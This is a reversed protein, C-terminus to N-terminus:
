QIVLFKDVGTLEFYARLDENSNILTVSGGHIVVRDYLSRLLGLAASDVLGVWLLDFVFDTIGAKELGTVEERLGALEGTILQACSISVVVESIGIRVVLFNPLSM